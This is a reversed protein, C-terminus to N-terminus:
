TGMKRSPPKDAAAIDTVGASYTERTRAIHVDLVGLAAPADGRSVAELMAEHERFSLDTHQPKHALHTRLAAIKGVFLAYNQEMLRNGCHAFFCLHFATDEDLYTKVDNRRHAKVMRAVIVGLGEAFPQPNREMAAKLASAELAQRLECIEVVERQSLTFVFAGRQPLIRVLGELRLQALAERVPTKSVELTEALQRESLPQGLELSGSVIAERLRKTVSETLSQPREIPKVAAHDGDPAAPQRLGNVAM